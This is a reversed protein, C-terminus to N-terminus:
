STLVGSSALRDYGKWRYILASVGWALLFIGIVAFGLNALDDGLVAIVSWFGGELGMRDAILGLAELGGILLAVAV